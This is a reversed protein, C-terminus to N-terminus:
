ELTYLYAAIDKGDQETVGMQPMATGPSVGQPDMIWRMMNEPTNPLRGALYTRGAIRDLPPGVQGTAGPVGPINHCAGCGYKQMREKGQAPDGGTMEAARQEANQCGWAFLLLFLLALRTM